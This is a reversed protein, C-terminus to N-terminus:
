PTIESFDNCFDYEKEEKEEHDATSGISSAASTSTNAKSYLGATMAAAASNIITQQENSVTLNPEQAQTVTSSAALSPEPATSTNTNIASEIHKKKHFKKGKKGM